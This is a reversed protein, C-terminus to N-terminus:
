FFPLGMLELGKREILKTNLSTLSMTLLLRQESMSPQLFRELALISRGKAYTRGTMKRHSLGRMKVSGGLVFLYGLLHLQSDLM